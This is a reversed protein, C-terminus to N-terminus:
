FGILRFRQTTLIATDCSEILKEAKSLATANVLVVKQDEPTPDFFDRSM